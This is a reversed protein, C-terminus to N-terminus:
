RSAAKSLATALYMALVKTNRILANEEAYEAPGHAGGAGCGLNVAECGAILPVYCADSWGNMGGVKPAKGVIQQFARCLDRLLPSDAPTEFPPVDKVWTIAPPRDRLFADAAAAAGVDAAIEDRLLAGCFGKGARKAEAAEDIFYVLNFEMEASGPVVSAHVGARFVGINLFGSPRGAERRAKFRDVASKVLLAKELASVGKDSAAHASVGAVSINGTLVGSGGRAVMDAYGDVCVAVDPRCGGLLLAIVGAGSGSCEEEIVSAVTLRGALSVGLEVLAEAAHLAM